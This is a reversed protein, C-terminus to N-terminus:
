GRGPRPAERLPSCRGDSSTFLVLVAPCLHELEAVAHEVLAITLEAVRHKRRADAAPLANIQRSIAEM